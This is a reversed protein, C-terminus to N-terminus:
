LSRNDYSNSLTTVSVGLLLYTLAIVTATYNVCDQSQLYPDTCLLDLAKHCVSHEVPGAAKLKVLLIYPCESSLCSTDYGLMELLLTEHEYM